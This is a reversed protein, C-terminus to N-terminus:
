QCHNAIETLWEVIENQDHGNDDKYAGRQLVEDASMNRMVYSTIIKKCKTESTGMGLRQDNLDVPDFALAKGQQQKAQEFATKFAQAAHGFDWDFADEITIQNSSLRVIADPHAYNEISRKRSLFACCDDRANVADIRAQKAPSPPLNAATRDSDFLFVQPMGIRDLYRREVWDKLTEGGGITWFVQDPEFGEVYGAEGLVLGFSILADIDTPGEVAVAVKANAGNSADPLVGLTEAIVKYVDETGHQVCIESTEADTNIFRLSEIPLMGALAPVHTTLIVQDGSTSLEQLARVIREQSDPHQSTEPEEIAYIVPVAANALGALKETRKRAAEAQFFSLLVLRRVGSGRKNLPIHEDSELDLKFVSDWRPPRFQPKLVSATDLDPFSTKLQEITRNATETAFQEVKQTVDALDDHLQALASKIALKMPDQVEDDQDTSKRDSRFLAFVPLSRKIAEWVHKADEDKLPVDQLALELNEAHNYLAQRMSPKNNQQCNAEVGAVKVLKRLDTVKKSLLGSVANSSPHLASAFVRVPSSAKTCDFVKVIELHEDANLLHEAQLTTAAGADMDLQDPLDCFTVSIRVNSRDGSVCADGQDIKTSGGEFFIDLSELVTSKGIDNCGTLATLDEFEITTPRRYRRFNELKLAKIKM